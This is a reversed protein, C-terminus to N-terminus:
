AKNIERSFKEALLTYAEQAKAADAKLVYVQIQGLPYSDYKARIGESGLYCIFDQMTTDNFGRGTEGRLIAVYETDDQILPADPSGQKWVDGFEWEESDRPDTRTNSPPTEETNGFFVFFAVLSILLLVFLSFM